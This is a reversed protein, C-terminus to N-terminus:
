YILEGGFERVLFKVVDNKESLEKFLTFITQEKTDADKEEDYSIHLKIPLSYFAELERALLGADHLLEEYSFRRACSMYLVGQSFSVLECFRLHTVIVKHNKKLLDDLFQKWEVRFKQVEAACEYPTSAASHEETRGPVAPVHRRKESKAFKSFKDQWSSFDM